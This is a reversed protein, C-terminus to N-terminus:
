QCKLFRTLCSMFKTDIHSLKISGYVSLKLFIRMFNFIHRLFIVSFSGKMRKITYSYTKSHYKNHQLTKRLNEIMFSFCM